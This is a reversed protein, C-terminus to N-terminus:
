SPERGHVPWFVTSAALLWGVMEAVLFKFGPPSVRHHAENVRPNANLRSDMMIRDIFDDVITASNYIGGLREYLSSVAGSLSPTTSSRSHADDAERRECAREYARAQM